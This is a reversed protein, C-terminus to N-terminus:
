NAPDGLNQSRSSKDKFNGRDLLALTEIYSFVTAPCNDRMEELDPFLDVFTQTAFDFSFIEGFGSDIMLQGNKRLFMAVSSKDTENQLKGLNTWSDYVGYEKMVWVDNRIATDYIHVVAISQGYAIVFLMDSPAKQLCRPLLIERFIEHKVDFVLVLSIGKDGRGDYAILHLAGNVFPICQPKFLIHYPIEYKPTIHSINKWSGANVSYVEAQVVPRPKECGCLLRLVKFDNTTSDFGLGCFEEGHNLKPKPLTLSRSISPNRLIYDSDRLFLLLGNCSSYLSSKSMSYFHAPLECEIFEETNDDHFSMGYGNEPWVHCLIVLHPNSNSAQVHPLHTQFIFFSSKLLYYWSKCVETCQLLDQNPVRKLIEAILEDQLIEMM